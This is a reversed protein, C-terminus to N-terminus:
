KHYPHNNLLSWVRYLQEAIVVRVLPHPLTLPSLSWVQNARRLCSASLGDPGGILLSVSQGQMRWATVQGAAQETSWAAGGRDLAVVWHNDAIAALIQEGEKEIAIAAPSSKGRPALPLSKFSVAFDRPLRKLYEQCGAEVWSPM